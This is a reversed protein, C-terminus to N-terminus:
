DNCTEPDVPPASSRVGAADRRAAGACESVIGELLRCAAAPEAEVLRRFGSRGLHWLHAKSRTEATVERSGDLVLSLAGLVEGPGIEAGIGVRGADVRVRGAVVFWAGNAAEGERFLTVGPELEFVELEDAVADREADTLPALLPFKDLDLDNM